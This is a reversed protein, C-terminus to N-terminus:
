KPWEVLPWAERWERDLAPLILAPEAAPAPRAPPAPPLLRLLVPRPPREYALALPSGLAVCRRLHVRYLQGHPCHAAAAPFAAALWTAAFATAVLPTAM